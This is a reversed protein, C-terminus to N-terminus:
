LAVLRTMRVDVRKNAWFEGDVEVWKPLKLIANYRTYTSSTKSTRTYITVKGDFASNCYTTQLYEYQRWSLVDFRWIVSAYGATYNLGDGRIKFIGVDRLGFARPARFAIDNTPTISEINTLSVLAVGHGAAIRYDYQPM